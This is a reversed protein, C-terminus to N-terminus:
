LVKNDITLAQYLTGWPEIDAKKDSQKKTVFEEYIGSNTCATATCGYGLKRLYTLLKTSGFLNDLWVIYLSELLQTPLKNLLFLVTAAIQNKDRGWDIRTAM